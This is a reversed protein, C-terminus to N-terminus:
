KCWIMGWDVKPITDNLKNKIIDINYYDAILPKFTYKDENQLYFESFGLELLYDLCKFTVNNLESAWEFCLLDVKQTLSCICEYEGGEVDIKIMDPLGYTLILNDITTTKCIIETFPQNYFRSSPSVLWDKNISSLCDNEGQYFVIDNNNNNCIAYNICIVNENQINQKLKNFTYPVAEVAIIKDYNNINAITWEGINAGIDFIM